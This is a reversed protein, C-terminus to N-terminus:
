VLFEALTKGSALAQKLWAPRPGRGGWSNGAQDRYRARAAKKSAASKAAENRKPHATSGGVAFEELTKGSALADRLWQPRPGRGVWEHGTEDRYKARTSSRKKSAAGGSSGTGNRQGGASGRLGLDSATLGYVQIAQKIRAIVDSLEDRKLQEAERQLAEIQKQVEVFTKKM